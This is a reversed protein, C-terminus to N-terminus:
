FKKLILELGYLAIDDVKEGQPRQVKVLGGVVKYGQPRLKEFDQNVETFKGEMGEKAKSNKLNGKRDTCLIRIGNFATDDKGEGKDPQVQAVAGYMYQDKDCMLRDGWDGWSGENLRINNQTNWNNWDCLIIEIANTSTDDNDKILTSGEYLDQPREVQLRVGCGVYGKPATIEDDHDFYGWDGKAVTVYDSTQITSTVELLEMPSKDPQSLFAQEGLCSFTQFAFFVVVVKLRM